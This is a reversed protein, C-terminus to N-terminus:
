NKNVDKRNNLTDLFDLMYLLSDICIKSKDIEVGHLDFIKVFEKFRKEMGLFGVGLRGYVKIKSVFCTERTTMTCSLGIPLITEMTKTLDLTATYKKEEPINKIEGMTEAYGGVMDLAKERFETGLETRWYNNIKIDNDM